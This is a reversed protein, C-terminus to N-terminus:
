DLRVEKKSKFKTTKMSLVYRRMENVGTEWQRGM